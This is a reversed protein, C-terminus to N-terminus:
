ESLLTKLTEAIDIHQFQYGNESLKEPHVRQSALLLADAMEGFVMRAAFPPVPFVTPRSLAAGLAQTLEINTCPNPSVVNIPGEISTNNLAHTISGVADTLSAWSVYQAGSGIRGGLGLKFPTLMTKLAGGAPSLLMGFRLHVVRIGAARAPDAAAEWAKCVESLFGEGAISKETLTEEGRDGYYGIASAVIFVDPKEQRAALAQALATTSQVRSQFIREKKGATWRGVISEGALHIVADLDDLAASPTVQYTASDWYADSSKNRSLRQTKHGDKELQKLLRSGVLGSAGSVLINM